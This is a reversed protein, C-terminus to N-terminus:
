NVALVFAHKFPLNVSYTGDSVGDFHWAAIDTAIFSALDKNGVTDKVIRVSVLNHARVSIKASIVGGLEPNMSLHKQYESQIAPWNRNIVTKITELKGPFLPTEGALSTEKAIMWRGDIRKVTMKKITVDSYNNSMYSQEFRVAVHSADIHDTDIERVSVRIFEPRSVRDARTKAWEDRTAGSNPKFNPAYFALYEAVNQNSWAHAWETVMNSVDHSERAHSQASVPETKVTFAIILAAATIAIKKM